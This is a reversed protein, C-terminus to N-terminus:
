AACGGCTNWPPTPEEDPHLHLGGLPRGLAGSPDVGRGRALRELQRGVGIRIPDRDTRLVVLEGARPAFVRLPNPRHRGAESGQAHALAVGDRHHHDVPGLEMEGVRGRHVESGHRERNVVGVGGVLDLVQHVVRATGDRDGLLPECVLDQGGADGGVRELVHDHDVTLRWVPAIDSSSSV